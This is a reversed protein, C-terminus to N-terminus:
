NKEKKALKTMVIKCKIESLTDNTLFYKHQLIISLRLLSLTNYSIFLKSTTKKSKNANKAKFSCSKM